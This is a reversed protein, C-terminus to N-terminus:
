SPSPARTTPTPIPTREATASSFRGPQARADRRVLLVGFREANGEVLWRPLAVMGRDCVLMRLTIHTIKVPKHRRPAVGALTLHPRM